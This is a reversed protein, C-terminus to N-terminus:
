FSGERVQNKMLGKRLKIINEPLVSENEPLPVDGKKKGMQVVSKLGKLKKSGNLATSNDSYYDFWPFGYKTYEKATFPVNPPNEGTITRWLLSNAIHVFCRSKNSMDWDDLEFPDEYIEQKMRGGSALTMDSALPSMDEQELYM